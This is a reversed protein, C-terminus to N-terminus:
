RAGGWVAGKGPLAELWEEAMRRVEENDTSESIARWLQAATAADGGRQYAAAAFRTVYDPANPNRAATAFARAAELYSKMYIYRFFGLEFGLRWSDPNRGVGKELLAEGRGLQGEEALVLAGFLYASEFGPDADTLVTFMHQALPYSQDSMHHKGYYQIAALWALDALLHRHGLSTEQLFRGSPFFLLEVSDRLAQKRVAIEERAHTSLVVCVLAAFILLLPTGPKPKM